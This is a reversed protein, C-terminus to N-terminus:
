DDASASVTDKEKASISAKGYRKGIIGTQYAAVLAGTLITFIVATAAYQFGARYFPEAQADTMFSIGTPLALGLMTAAITVGITHGMQRSTEM